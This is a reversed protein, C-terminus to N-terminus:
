KALKLIEKNGYFSELSQSFVDKIADESVIRMVEQNAKFPIPKILSRKGHGEGEIIINTLVENNKDLITWELEMSTSADNGDLLLNGIYNVKPIIIADINSRIEQSDTVTVESFISRAMEEANNSLSDGLELDYRDIGLATNDVNMHLQHAKFEQSLVCQIHANIKDKKPFSIISSKLQQHFSCGYLGFVTLSVLAIFICNIGKELKFM